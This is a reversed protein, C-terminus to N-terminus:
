RTLVVPRSASRSAAEFKCFYVGSPAPQGISNMGDWSVTHTGASFLGEALLRVRNGKIDYISLRCTATEPIQFRIVTGETFPNPYSSELRIRTPIGGEHLDDDSLVLHIGQAWRADTLAADHGNGSGDILLPGSGENMRWYAALGVEVSDLPTNMTAEIEAVSRARSWVRAEDIIGDFTYIGAGSNGICVDIELNDRITGSPSGTQTIDEPIGNILLTVEGSAADYTAAVHQWETM